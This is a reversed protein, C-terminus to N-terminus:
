KLKIFGNIKKLFNTEILEESSLITLDLPIFFATEFIIQIQKVSELIRDNYTSFILLVDVDNPIINVKLTSGFLYLEEFLEFLETNKNFFELFNNKTNNKALTNM